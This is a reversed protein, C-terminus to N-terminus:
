KWRSVKQYFEIYERLNKDEENDSAITLPITKNQTEKNFFFNKLIDRLYHMKNKM